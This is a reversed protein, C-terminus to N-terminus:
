LCVEEHPVVGRRRPWVVQHQWFKIDFHEVLKSRFYDLSLNRVHRVEQSDNDGDRTDVDDDDDSEEQELHEGVRSTDYARIEAPWLIRTLALPVDDHDLEGLKNEWESTPVNIGDWPADMGDVELLMNHLACCTLWIRDVSEVSHLRM